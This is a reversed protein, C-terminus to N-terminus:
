FGWLLIATALGRGRNTFQDLRQQRSMPRTLPYYAPLIVLSLLIRVASGRRM